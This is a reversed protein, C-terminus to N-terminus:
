SDREMDEALLKIRQRLVNVFANTRERLWVFAKERESEQAWSKTVFDESIIRRGLKDTELVAGHGLERQIDPWSELLRDVLRAGFSDRTYSLYVGVKNRAENRYVTLWATGGPM